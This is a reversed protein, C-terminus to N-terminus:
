KIDLVELSNFRIHIVQFDMPKPANKYNDKRRKIADLKDKKKGKEYKGKEDKGKDEMKELKDDKERKYSIGSEDAGISNGGHKRKRTRNIACCLHNNTSSFCDMKLVKRVQLYFDIRQFFHM